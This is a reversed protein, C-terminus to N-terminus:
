IGESIVIDIAAVRICRERASNPEESLYSMRVKSEEGKESHDCRLRYSEFFDGCPPPLWATERRACRESDAPTWLCEIQVTDSTMSLGDPNM